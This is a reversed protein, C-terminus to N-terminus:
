PKFGHLNQHCSICEQGAPYTPHKAPLPPAMTLASSQSATALLLTTASPTAFNALTAPAPTTPAIVILTPVPTTTTSAPMQTWKQPMDFILWAFAFGLSALGILVVIILKNIVDKKWFATFSKM